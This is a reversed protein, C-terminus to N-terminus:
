IRLVPRVRNRPSHRDSGCVPCAVDFTDEYRGATLEELDAFTLVGATVEAEALPRHGNGSASTPDTPRTVAGSRRRVNVAPPPGGAVRRPGQLRLPRPSRTECVHPLRRHSKAQEADVRSLRSLERGRRREASALQQCARRANQTGECEGRGPADR